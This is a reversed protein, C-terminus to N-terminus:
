SPPMIDCINRLGPSYGSVALAATPSMCIRVASNGPTSGSIPGRFAKKSKRSSSPTRAHIPHPRPPPESTLEPTQMAGSGRTNSRGAHGCSNLDSGFNFSPKVAAFAINCGADYGSWPEFGNGRAVRACSALSMCRTAESAERCWVRDVTWWKGKHIQKREYLNTCWCVM